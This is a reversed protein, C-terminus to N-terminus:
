DSTDKGAGPRPPQYDPNNQRQTSQQNLSFLGRNSSRSMLGPHQIIYICKKIVQGVYEIWSLSDRNLPMATSSEASSYPIVAKNSVERDYAERRSPAVNVGQKMNKIMEKLHILEPTPTANYEYARQIWPWARKGREMLEEQSLEEVSMEKENTCSPAGIIIDVIQLCAQARVRDPTSEIQVILEYIRLAAEEDGSQCCQAILFLSETLSFQVCLDTYRELLLHFEEEAIGNESNKNILTVIMQDLSLSGLKYKTISDIEKTEQPREDDPHYDICGDFESLLTVVKELHNIAETTDKAHHVSEISDMIKQRIDMDQIAKKAKEDQTSHWGAYSAMLDFCSCYANYAARLYGKQEYCAAIEFLKEKHNFCSAMYRYNLAAMSSLHYDTDEELRLHHDKLLQLVLARIKKDIAASVEQTNEYFYLAHGELQGIFREGVKVSEEIADSELYYQFILKALTLSYAALSNNEEKDSSSEEKEPNEAKEQEQLAQAICRYVISAVLPIAPIHKGENRENRENIEAFLAASMEEPAVRTSCVEFVRKIIQKHHNFERIEWDELDPAGQPKRMQCEHLLTREFPVFLLHVIDDVNIQGETKELQKLLCDIIEVENTEDRCTDAELLAASLEDVTFDLRDLLVKVMNVDSFRAAFKLTTLGDARRGKPDSSHEILLQAIALRTEEDGQEEKLIESSSKQKILQWLLPMKRLPQDVLAAKEELSSCAGLVRKVENIDQSWAAEQFPSRESQTEPQSGSFFQLPASARPRREKMKRQM